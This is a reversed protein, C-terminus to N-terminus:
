ESGLEEAIAAREMAITNRCNDIATTVLDPLSIAAYGEIMACAESAGPCSGAFYMNLEFRAQDGDRNGTYQVGYETLWALARANRRISKVAAEIRDLNM